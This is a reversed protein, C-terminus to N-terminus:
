RHHPGPEGAAGRHHPRRRAIRIVVDEFFRALASGRYVFGCAANDRTVREGDALRVSTVATTVDKFEIYQYPEGPRLLYTDPGLM